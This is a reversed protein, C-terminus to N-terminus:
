KTAPAREANPDSIVEVLAPNIRYLWGENGSAGAFRQVGLLREYYRSMARQRFRLGTQAPSVDPAVGEYELPFAKMTILSYDPLERAIIENAAAAWLGPPSKARDAWAMRFDVLNGYVTVQEIFSDWAECLASALDGEMQTSADMVCLFDDNELHLGPEFELIQLAAVRKDGLTVWCFLERCRVFGEDDAVWSWRSRRYRASAKLGKFVFELSQRYARRAGIEERAFAPMDDTRRIRSQRSLLPLTRFPNKEM